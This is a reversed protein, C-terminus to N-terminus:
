SRNQLRKGFTEDRQLINPGTKVGHSFSQVAVRSCIFRAASHM